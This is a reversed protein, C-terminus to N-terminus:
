KSFCFYEQGWATQAFRNSKSMFDFDALVMDEGKDEDDEEDVDDGDGGDGGGGGGAIQASGPSSRGACWRLAQQARHQSSRGDKGPRPTRQTGMTAPSSWSSWSSSPTSLCSSPASSWSSSAPGINPRDRMKEKDPIRQTAMTAPPKGYHHHFITPIHWYHVRHSSLQGLNDRNEDYPVDFDKDDFHELHGTCSSTRPLNLWSTVTTMGWPMPTATSLTFVTM